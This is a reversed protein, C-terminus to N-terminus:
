SCSRDEDAGVVTSSSGDKERISLTVGEETGSSMVSCTLRAGVVVM